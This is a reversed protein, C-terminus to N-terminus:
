VPTSIALNLVSSKIRSNKEPEKVLEFGSSTKRFIGGEVPSGANENSGEVLLGGPELGQYINQIIRSIEEQNFYGYHLINMVRIVSFKGPIPKLLNHNIIATEKNNLLFKFEGDLLEISDVLEYSKNEQDKAIRNVANKKLRNNLFYIMGETRAINWVFPPSTIEILKGDDDTVIYKKDSQQKKLVNYKVNLDSGTYSYNDFNKSIQNLFYWSARGDSIAIDFITPKKQGSKKIESIAENDFNNFRERYTRKIVNRDSNFRNLLIEACNERKTKDKITNLQNYLYISINKYKGFIDKIQEEVLPKLTYIGTRLM